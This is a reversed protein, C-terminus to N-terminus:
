HLNSKKLNYIKSTKYSCFVTHRSSKSEICILKIYKALQWKLVTHCLSLLKNLTPPIKEKGLGPANWLKMKLLEDLLKFQVSLFMTMLMLRSEVTFIEVQNRYWYICQKTNNPRMYNQKKEFCHLARKPRQIAWRHIYDRESIVTKMYTTCSHTLIKTQSNGPIM